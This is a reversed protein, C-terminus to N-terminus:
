TREANTVGQAREGVRQKLVSDTGRNHRASQVELDSESLDNRVVKVNELSLETQVPLRSFAPIAGMGLTGRYWPLWGFLKRFISGNETRGIKLTPALKPQSPKPSPGSVSQVQGNAVGADADTSPAPGALGEQLPQRTSDAGASVGADKAIGFRPLARGSPLRYRGETDKLGVLSKGAALFRVLRM